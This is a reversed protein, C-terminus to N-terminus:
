WGANGGEDDGWSGQNSAGWDNDADGGTPASEAQWDSGGGDGGATSGGVETHGAEELARQQQKEAEEPDRYVFMDVMVSWEKERSITNSLRLVERALMWYMLAISSKGNTNCPIAIDIGRLSSDTNCFAIVPMNVYSAEVIPQHDKRTDSAILLRPEFFHSQQQNTFTGPTFRGAITRCGIHQGLKLVARQAVPTSSIGSLAVACVDKPNEIAVIARAALQLKEWTKRIDIVHAGNENRKFVYRTMSTDVNQSGLHVGCAIMRKVDEERLNLVPPIQSM